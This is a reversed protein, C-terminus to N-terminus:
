RPRLRSFDDIVEPFRSRVLRVEERGPFDAAGHDTTLLWHVVAPFCTHLSQILDRAARHRQGLKAKGYERIAIIAARLHLRRREALSGRARFGLIQLTVDADTDKPRPEYHGNKPNFSWRSFLDFGHASPDLFGDHYKQGKLENCRSCTLLMNSWAFTSEPFQSKPKIHEIPYAESGECYMCLQPGNCMRALTQRLTAFATTGQKRRKAKDWHSGASGKPDVERDLEAQCQDLYAATTASLSARRVAMM